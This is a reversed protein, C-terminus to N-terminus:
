YFGEEFDVVSFIRKGQSAVRCLVKLVANKIERGSFGEALTSLRGISDEDLPMDFPVKQPIKQRILARRCDDDPLDFKISGLIRSEFAKDYNQVLNTSFIVIGHFQELNILLQSRM